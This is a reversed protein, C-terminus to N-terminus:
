VYLLFMKDTIIPDPRIYHFGGPVSCLGATQLGTSFVYV